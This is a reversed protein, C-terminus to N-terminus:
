AVAHLLATGNRREREAMALAPPVIGCGPHTLSLAHSDDTEDAHGLMGNALAANVASTVTTSGIVCAEKVGGLTGVYAIAKRGPARRSGSLMSAMTDLFHDKTKEVLAPPLPKRPASAIYASRERMVPSIHSACKKSTSSESGM